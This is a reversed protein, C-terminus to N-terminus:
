SRLDAKQVFGDNAQRKIQQLTESVETKNKGSAYRGRGGVM